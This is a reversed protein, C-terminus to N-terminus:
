QVQLRRLARLPEQKGTLVAAGLLSEVHSHLCKEPSEARRKRPQRWLLELVFTRFQDLLGRRWCEPEKALGLGALTRNDLVQGAHFVHLDTAAKARCGLM